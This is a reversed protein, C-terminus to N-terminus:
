RISQIEAIIRNKTRTKFSDLQINQNNQKKRM